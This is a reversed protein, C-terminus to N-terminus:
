NLPDTLQSSHHYKLLVGAKKAPGSGGVISKRFTNWCSDDDRGLKRHEKNTM